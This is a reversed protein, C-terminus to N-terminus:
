NKDWNITMNTSLSEWEGSFNLSLSRNPPSWKFFQLKTKEAEGYYLKLINNLHTETTNPKCM